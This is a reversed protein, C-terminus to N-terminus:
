VKIAKARSRLIFSQVVTVINSAVWFLGIGASIKWLFFGTILVPLWNMFSNQQLPQPGTKTSLWVLASGIIALFFDPRALDSIWLFATGSFSLERIIAIMGLVLPLQLLGSLLGSKDLLPLNHKKYLNLTEQSMKQPNDRYQAKIKELKPQLKKMRAQHHLSRTSYKITLPLLAFRLILTTLLIVLGISGFVTTLSSFYGTLLQILNSFMYNFVGKTSVTM